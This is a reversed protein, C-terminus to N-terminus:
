IEKLVIPAVAVNFATLFAVERELLHAVCGQAEDRTLTFTYGGNSTEVSLKAGRLVFTCLDRLQGLRQASLGIRIAEAETLRERDPVIVPLQRPSM